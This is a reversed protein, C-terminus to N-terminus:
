EEHRYVGEEYGHPGSYGWTPIETQPTNKKGDIHEQRANGFWAGLFLLETKCVLWKLLTAEVFCNNIFPVTFYPNFFFVDTVFVNIEVKM